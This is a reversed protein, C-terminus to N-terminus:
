EQAALHLLVETSEREDEPVSTTESSIFLIARNSRGLAQGPAIRRARAGKVDNRAEVTEVNKRSRNVQSAHSDSVHAPVVELPVIARDLDASQKPM